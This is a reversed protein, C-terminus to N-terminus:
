VGETRGPLFDRVLSDQPCLQVMRVCKSLTAALPQCAMCWRAGIPPLALELASCNKRPSADDGSAKWGSFM